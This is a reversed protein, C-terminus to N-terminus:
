GEEGASDMFTKFLPDKELEDLIKNVERNELPSGSNFFAEEAKQPEISFIKGVEKELKSIECLVLGLPADRGLLISAIVRENSKNLRRIVVTYDEGEVILEEVRGFGTFKSVRDSLSCLYLSFPLIRDEMGSHGIHTIPLGRSDTLLCALANVRVRVEGLLRDLRSLLPFDRQRPSSFFGM